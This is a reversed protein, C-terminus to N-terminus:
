LRKTMQCERDDKKGDFISPGANKFPFVVGCSLMRQSVTGHRRGRNMYTNSNM